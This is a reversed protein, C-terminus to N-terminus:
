EISKLAEVMNLKIAKRSVISSILVTLISIIGVIIALNYPELYATYEFSSTSALDVHVSLLVYGMPVGIILGAFLQLLNDHRIFSKIEKERYGIVKLTAYERSRETFSLVGLNYLIIISLLLASAMLIVIVMLISNIVENAQELQEELTIVESVYSCNIADEAMDSNGSLLVNPTFAGSLTQWFSSTMFISQPTAMAVISEVQVTTYDTQGAIRFQIIDKEQIDMDTALKRSIAVGDTPLAVHIRNTDEFHYFYGKDYIQIISNGRSKSTRIDIVNEQLWQANGHALDYLESKNKENATAKLTIKAGYDFQTGYLNDNTHKLSDYLGFSDILLAVSGIVGIVGIIARAKNRAISRLTWRWEYSLMNWLNKFRELFIPKHTKPPEERMTIAPMGNTGKRSAILATVSCILVVLVLLSPAVLSNRVTWEPVSFFNKQLSLLAESITVPAIVFGLSGGLLSVWFGYFLYHLRIKWNQYGLAKLTGIQIRQIEIIRKMTTQITLMALLIFVVAFLITMSRLPNFKDIFNSIGKFDSHDLYGMYKSELKQEIESRVYRIAEEDMETYEQKESDWQKQYRIKVQSYELNDCALKKMNDPSVYGYGYQVHDPLVAVSSGTYSFYEPSLVIGRVELHINQGDYEIKVTDGVSIEHEAAFAEYLWIGKGNPQYPEGNMTEPISIDNQPSAMLLLQSSKNCFHMETTLTYVPQVNEIGTLHSINRVDDANMKYGQVWADATNSKDIWEQAYDTMGFWVGELGTYVFVTFFSMLLVAIFQVKMNWLDRLLKKTLYLM